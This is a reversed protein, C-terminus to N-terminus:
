RTVLGALVAEETIIHGRVRRLSRRQRLDLVGGASLTPAISCGSRCWLSLLAISHAREAAGGALSILLTAARSQYRPQGVLLLM